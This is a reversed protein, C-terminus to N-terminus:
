KDKISKILDRRKIEGKELDSGRLLCVIAKGIKQSHTIKVLMTEFSESM